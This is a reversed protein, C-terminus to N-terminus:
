AWFLFLSMSVVGWSRGDAVGDNRFIGGRMEEFHREGNCLRIGGALTEHQRDPNRAAVHDAFERAVDHRQLREVRRAALDRM